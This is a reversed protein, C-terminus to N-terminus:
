QRLLKEPDAEATRIHADPTLMRDSCVYEVEVTRSRLQRDLDVACRMVEAISRLPIFRTRFPEFGLADLNKANRRFIHKTIGILNGVCDQLDAHFGEVM